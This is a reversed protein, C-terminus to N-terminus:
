QGHPDRVRTCREQSWQVAEKRTEEVKKGKGGIEWGAEHRCRNFDEIKCMGLEAEWNFIKGNSKAKEDGLSKRTLDM